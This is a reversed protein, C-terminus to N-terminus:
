YEPNQILMNNRLIEDHFIPKFYMKKHWKRKQFVVHSIQPVSSTTKDDLLPYLIDAAYCDGYAEEGIMWRRVDYYRQDEYMMEVRKENRMRNKLDNGVDTINPMGARKRIMNLYTRAEEEEGLEICSEAYNFLIEAYRFYRWPIDQAFFWGDISPDMMKRIYYGTFGAEAPRVSSQRTDLGYEVVISNTSANWKEYRGVQLTSTPEKELLSADRGMDRVSSGNYIIFAYFRPDRNSYPNASHESNNWDFSVGTNMEFADVLNGLPVNNGRGGFGNPYYLQLPCTNVGQWWDPRFYRIFIDEENGYSLFLDQCNKSAEELSTPNKKFLDYIGLDIIDKAAKKARKWREIQSGETYGLLEPNKYNPYIKEINHHLDSAAYTLVRSKLAMAAGKTARGRDSGSYEVPLLAAADDCDKVIFEVCDSFTSRPVLFDDTLEYAKTIIPIGGYLKLLQHYYMARLFHVEGRFREKLESEIPSHELKELAINCYRIAQYIKPWQHWYGGSTPSDSGSNVNLIGTNARADAEDVYVSTPYKEYGHELEIYIQSLFSAILSPDESEWVDVDSYETLPKTELFDSCSNMIFLGLLCIIILLFNGKKM